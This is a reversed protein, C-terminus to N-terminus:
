KASTVDKKEKFEKDLGNALEDVEEEEDSSNANAKNKDIQTQAKQAVEDVKAKTEEGLAVTADEKPPAAVNKTTQRTKQKQLFASLKTNKPKDSM